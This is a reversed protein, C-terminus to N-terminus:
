SRWFFKHNFANFLRGGCAFGNVSRLPTECEQAVTCYFLCMWSNPLQLHQKSSKVSGLYIFLYTTFACFLWFKCFRSFFSIWICITFFFFSRYTWVGSDMFISKLCFFRGCTWISKGLLEGNSGISISNWQSFKGGNKDFHESNPRKNQNQNNSAQQFGDSLQKNM